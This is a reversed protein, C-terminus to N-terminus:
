LLAGETQESIREHASLLGWEIQLAETNGSDLGNASVLHKEAERYKGMFRDIRAALLHGAVSRPWIALCKYIHSKADDFQDQDFAAKAARFHYQYFGIFAGGALLLPLVIWLLRRPRLIQRAIAKIWM